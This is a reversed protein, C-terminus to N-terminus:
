GGSLAGYLLVSRELACHWQLPLLTIARYHSWWGSLGALNAWNLHTSNRDHRHHDFGNGNWFICVVTFLQKQFVDLASSYKKQDQKGSCWKCQEEKLFNSIRTLDVPTSRQLVRRSSPIKIWIWLKKNREIWVALHAQWSKGNKFSKFHISINTPDSWIMFHTSINTPDSWIQCEEFWWIHLWDKCLDSQWHPCLCWKDIRRCRHGWRLVFTANCFGWCICVVLVSQCFM